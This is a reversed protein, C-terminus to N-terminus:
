YKRVLERIRSIRRAKGPDPAVEISINPRDFSGVWSFPDHLALQHVIDDRTLRDATATLAIVPMGPMLRKVASLETYVPRFDHGWQSICHAEDIAILRVPLTRSWAQVDAVFREPSTYLLKVRGLRAQELAERVEAEPRNSHAAAAPIGNAMLAAVQDDMLAILPSVVICLGDSMLAPLQYCLSKGGGTPMLAVTDRGSVVADIIEAQGPRFSSYGYFRRLLALAQAHTHPNM